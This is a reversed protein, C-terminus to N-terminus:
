ILFNTLWWSAVNEDELMDKGNEDKTYIINKFGDILCSVFTKGEPLGYNAWHADLARFDYPKLTSRGFSLERGSYWYRKTQRLSFNTIYEKKFYITLNKVQISAVDDSCIFRFVELQNNTM